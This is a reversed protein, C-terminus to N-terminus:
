VFRWRCEGMQYLKGNYRTTKLVHPSAGKSKDQYHKHEGPVSTGNFVSVTMDLGDQYGFMPYIMTKSVFGVGGGLYVSDSKGPAMKAFRTRFVDNYYSNFKAIADIIDETDYSCISTDLTLTFRIKTGPKICERLVNLNKEIGDTHYEVRQCLVMDKIDIPQSDSVILGSLMDNVADEKRQKKRELTNFATTEIGKIEKRLFTNRNGPRTVARKSEAESSFYQSKNDEIDQCLLITRLMGKISSGPIYPMDYPDKVFEMVSARTGRELSTDSQDMKYRICNKIEDTRVNNEYLFRSLDARDDNLFFAEIKNMLGKKGMFSFLSPIDLVMIANNRLLYEKKNLERGSGIFLPGVTELEVDYKKLYDRM